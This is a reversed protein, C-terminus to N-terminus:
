SDNQYLRSRARWFNAFFKCLRPPRLRREGRNRLAEGVQVVAPVRHSRPVRLRRAEEGEGRRPSRRPPPGRLARDRYPCLHIIIFLLSYNECFRIESNEAIIQNTKAFKISFAVCAVRKQFKDRFDPCFKMWFECFFQLIRRLFHFIPFEINMRSFINVIKPQFKSIQATCFYTFRTSRTM